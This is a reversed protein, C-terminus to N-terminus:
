CALTPRGPIECILLPPLAPCGFRGSRKVQPFSPAPSSSYLRVGPGQSRCRCLSALDCSLV